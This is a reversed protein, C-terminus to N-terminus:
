EKPASKSKSKTTTSKATKATGSTKKEAAPKEATAKKAKPAAKKAPKKEEASEAPKEVPEKKEAPAAAKKTTRKKPAPKEVPAPEEVAPVEIAPATEVVPAPEEAPAPEPQESGPTPIGTIMHYINLYEQASRNWSFDAEMARTRMAAFAEPHDYWAEMSRYIAGLMDDATTNAFTFGLGTGNIADFPPVSDRLGGTERVIPLTGYRMAIMQSLGCPEAVSPMLFLDAGSYIATSLAASYQICAAFRGPYQKQAQRFAEEYNWDGTGLVVMQLDCNMIRPLAELIMDFGKHPVLRSVCAVIPVRSDVNLGVAKQLAEKCAAKGAPDASSFKLPLAGDKTPDYLDVDLGNLIGRIKGSCESVVGALGHAYFDYQLEHAYTPSVTTVYDSAYIAGKMLNIDDYYELMKGHIYSKDLGFIDETLDKGYRGQYEINHITFVSRTNALTHLRYREELLYIPVLATQWDNCHIIDPYYGMHESLEVVARSFFAFREGDDFHGYIDSRRFYYENDIFWYSVGDKEISFVGCYSRRWALTVYFYQNFYMKDRWEQSIGQYLPLVVKVEHGAKALETPLSGAVDALGGTKIFPAVESAAFLIRM